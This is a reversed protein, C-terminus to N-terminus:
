ESDGQAESSVNAADPIPFGATGTPLAALRAAEAARKEAEPDYDSIKVEAPNWARGALMEGVTELAELAGVIRTEGYVVLKKM